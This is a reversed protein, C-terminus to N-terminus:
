APMWGPCLLLTLCRERRSRINLERLRPRAPPRAKSRFASRRRLRRVRASLSNTPLRWVHLRWTARRNPPCLGQLRALRSRARRRSRFRAPNSACPHRRQTAPRRSTRSRACPQFRSRALRSRARQRSRFRAPNSACPPCSQTAPRSSTRSRACPQFRSRALRSRARRRSRFRAPNSACPPVAQTAPRSSTCLRVAPVRDATGCPAGALSSGPRTAPAPARGAPRAPAAPGQGIPKQGVPPAQLSGPTPPGQEIPHAPPAQLHIGPQPRPAAVQGQGTFPQPSPPAVHGHDAPQQRGSPPVAAHANPQQHAPAVPVQGGSQQRPVELASVPNQRAPPGELHAGGPGRLGSLNEGQVLSRGSPNIASQPREDRRGQENGRLQGFNADVATPLSGEQQATKVVPLAQSVQDLKGPLDKWEQTAKGLQQLNDGVQRVQNLASFGSSLAPGGAALGALGSVQRTAGPLESLLSRVDPNRAFDKPNGPLNQARDVLSQVKGLGELTEPVNQLMPALEKLGDLGKLQQPLGDLGQLGQSLKQLEQLGGAQALSQDLAMLDQQAAGLSQFANDQLMNSLGSQEFQNFLSSDMFSTLNSNNFFSNNYSNANASTYYNSGSSGGQNYHTTQAPANYNQNSSQTQGGQYSGAPPEAAPARPAEAAPSRPAEAAPSRPAEASPGTPAQPSPNGGSNKSHAPQDGQNGPEGSLRNVKSPDGGDRTSSAQPDGTKRAPEQGGPGKLASVTRTDGSAKSTQPDVITDTFYNGSLQNKQADIAQAFRGFLGHAKTEIQSNDSKGVTDKVINYLEPYSKKLNQEDKGGQLYASIVESGFEGQSSAANKDIKSDKHEKAAYEKMLDSWKKSTEPNTRLRDDIRHGLEDNLVKELQKPDKFADESLRIKNDTYDYRGAHVKGKDDKLSQSGGDIVNIAFGDKTIEKLLEDDIKSHRLLHEVRAKESGSLNRTAKDIADERAKKDAAHSKDPRAAEKGDKAKLDGKAKIDQSSHTSKGSRFGSAAPKAAVKPTDGLGQVAQNPAASSAPGPPVPQAQAALARAAQEAQMRQGEKEQLERNDVQSTKKAEPANPEAAGSATKAVVESSQQTKTEAVGDKVQAAGDQVPRAQNERAAQPEGNKNEAPLQEGKFADQAPRAQNEQAKPAAQPEGDKVKAPPQQGKFDDQASRALNEQAKPAAQPEGNKIEAPPQQGKFADQLEAGREKVDQARGVGGAQHDPTKAPSHGDEARESRAQGPLQESPPRDGLLSGLGQTAKRATESRAEELTRPLSEEGWNHQVQSDAPSRYDGQLSQPDKAGLRAIPAALDAAPEGPPHPEKPQPAPIGWLKEWINAPKHSDTDKPPQANPDQAKDTDVPKALGALDRLRGSNGSLIDGIKSSWARSPSMPGAEGEGWVERLNDLMGVQPLHGRKRKEQLESSSRIEDDPRAPTAPGSQARNPGPAASAAPADAKSAAGGPATPTNSEKAGSLGSKLTNAASPKAPEAKKETAESTKKTKEIM